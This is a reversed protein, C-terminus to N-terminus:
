SGAPRAEWTVERRGNGPVTVELITEGNKLRTGRLGRFQWERPRGLVVRLTVPDPNATTLV